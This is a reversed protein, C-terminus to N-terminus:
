PNLFAGPWSLAWFPQKELIGSPLKLQMVGLWCPGLIQSWFAGPWSKAWFPQKGLILDWFATEIAPNWALLTGFDPELLSRALIQGLLATEWPDWFAIKIAPSWALLTGFDPEM